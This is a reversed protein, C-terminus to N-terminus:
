EQVENEEGLLSWLPRDSLSGDPLSDWFALNQSDLSMDGKLIVPERSLLSWHIGDPSKLAYVGDDDRSEAHCALVHRVKRGPQCHRGGYYMRYIGGDRFLTHHATLNREWPADHVLVVERRRPKHIQLRAGGALSQILFRDM